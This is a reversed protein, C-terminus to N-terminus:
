NLFDDDFPYSTLNEFGDETVVVQDELKVGCSGGVAGAYVEVCICQGVELHGDYGVAEWDEPYFIAPYEDCLGVGHFKVGYRLDRYKEPLRHGGEMLDHFSVGPKLLQMNTMIHEYGVQYAERAEDSPRGDGIWWTRSLDTCIGYAGVMDTDFAFIENDKLVRPGAEQFWPNTRPGSSLIRTEIWEGGRVHNARNLEAWADVETIGPRVMARMADMSAECAHIACRMAHLEEQSKVKRAHETLEQGEFLDIGIEELAWAGVLEIRDVGLRRNEGVRERLISDIEAAFKKAREAARDGADFYFFDAGHRIERVLPLHASLHDCSHFDWLVMYGDALVLCARCPNHTVWLQMNTSDTAYRINLPDFMLVGAYDRERIADVLRQLRYERIAVLNPITLGAAQWEEFALDSPGIEVRDYDNPSGDPLVDLASIRRRYPDIKRNSGIVFPDDPM